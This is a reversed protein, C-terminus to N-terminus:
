VKEPSRIKDLDEMRKSLTENLESLENELQEINKRQEIILDLQQTIPKAAKEFDIQKKKLISALQDEKEPIDKNKLYDQNAKILETAKKLYDKREKILDKFEKSIKERNKSVEEIKKSVKNMADVIDSEAESIKMATFSLQKTTLIENEDIQIIKEVLNLKYYDSLELMAESYKELSKGLDARSKAHEEQTKAAKSLKSSLDSELKMITSELNIVHKTFDEIKKM